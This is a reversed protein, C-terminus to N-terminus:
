SVQPSGGDSGFEEDCLQSRLKSTELQSSEILERAAERQSEAEQIAEAWVQEAAAATSLLKQLKLENPLEMDEWAHLLKGYHAKVAHNYQECHESLTWQSGRDEQSM